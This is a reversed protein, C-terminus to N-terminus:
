CRLAKCHRLTRQDEPPLTMYDGYQQVLIHEPHQPINFEGTEFRTRKLPFIQSTDLFSIRKCHYGRGIYPSNSQNARRIIRNLMKDLLNKSFFAGMKQYVRHHRSLPVDTYKTCLIRSLKRSLFKNFSRKLKQPSMKDYVFVDIFIGQVYPEDGKEHTELYFSARDRVKLSTGLNYFGKDTQATQLWMHQPFEAPAIKLFKEFSERPMAIDMDDDWPIFGQHRIAGLLTGADLWYELQHKTCITDIVKLMDLMIQQARKLRGDSLVADISTNWTNVMKILERTRLM